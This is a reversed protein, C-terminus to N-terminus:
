CPHSPLILDSEKVHGCLLNEVTESVVIARGSAYNTEIVTQYLPQQRSLSRRQLDAVHMSPSGSPDVSM